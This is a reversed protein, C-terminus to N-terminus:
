SKCFWPPILGLIAVAALFWFGSVIYERGDVGWTFVAGATAPGVARGVGSLTTAVGNLTGLISLSSASNTLMITVCPFGLIGAFGKLTLVVM